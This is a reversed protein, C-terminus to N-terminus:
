ALPRPEEFTGRMRETWTSLQAEAPLGLAALEKAVPHDGLELTVGAGGPVVQAGAGGQSFATAHPVGDILTYTTMSLPPTEDDGGRPLTLRLVLQGGMRLTATASDDAYALDIEEVTKPFGWITRGAECTFEQDVPLRAIYTGAQDDAGGRPKVFLIIGIELYDGLDNDRYDIVALNLQGRGPASEVLEFPEPVLEAAAGADVEFLATGASADRVECPLTVTRGAIEYTRGM